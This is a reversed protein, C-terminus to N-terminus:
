EDHMPWSFTVTFVFMERRRRWSNPAILKYEGAVVQSGVFRARLFWYKSVSALPDFSRVFKEIVEIPRRSFITIIGSSLTNIPKQSGM